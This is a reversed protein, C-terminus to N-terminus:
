SQYTISRISDVFERDNEDREFITQGMTDKQMLFAKKEDPNDFIPEVIQWINEFFELNRSEAAVHLINEKNSSQSTIIAKLKGINLEKATKFVKEFISFNENLACHLFINQGESCPRFLLTERHRSEFNEILFKWFTNFIARSLNVSLCLPSLNESDEASLIGLMEDKSFLKLATSLVSQIVNKRNSRIAQCLVSRQREGKVQFFKKKEEISEFEEDIKAWIADFAKPTTNRTATHLATGVKGGLLLFNKLETKSFIETAKELVHSLVENDLVASTLVGDRSLVKKKHVDTAYNEILSWLAKFYHFNGTATSLDIDLMMKTVPKLDLTELIFKTLNEQEEEIIQGLFNKSNCITKELRKSLIPFDKNEGDQKFVDDLFGRVVKHDETLVKEVLEHFADNTSKDTNKTRLIRKHIFNAVFYEECTKHLFELKGNQDVVLLGMRIVKEHDDKSITDFELKELLGPEFLSLAVIEHTRFVNNGDNSQLEQGDKTALTGKEDGWIRIKEKVFDEYFWFKTVIQDVEKQREIFSVSLMSVHLPIRFFDEKSHPQKYKSLLTKAKSASCGVNRLFEIQDKETFPHMKVSKCELHKEIEHSLHPRTTLLLGNKSDHIMKVFNLVFNKYTPSIEDFGDVVFMVKGSNFLYKFVQISIENSLELIKDLFYDVYILEHNQQDDTHLVDAYTKLDMFVVWNDKKMKKLENAAHLAFTTKGMM